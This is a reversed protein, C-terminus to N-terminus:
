QDTILKNVQLSNSEDISEPMEDKTNEEENKPRIVLLLALFPLLPARLRVLVGFIISSFGTIFGFILVFFLSFLLFENERIMKIRKRRDNTFFKILFYILITSEIGNLILSVSLAEFIYPRFLGALIAQPFVKILGVPSYDTIEITYKKGTYIKNNTFDQTQVEAEKIYKEVSVEEGYSQIGIFFGGISIIAILIQVFRKFFPFEKFRNSLRSSLAIFIPLMLSILVVSRLHFILWCHFLIIILSTIKSKQFGYILSFFHTVISFISIVVLTDKSIGTCWFSLSPIFLIAYTVWRNSDPFLRLILKYFRWTVNATITAFLVTIALYSNLTIFTFLSVVKAVFFSEKEKMIWTPPLGTELGYMDRFEPTRYEYYMNNFYTEPSIQFLRNMCGSLDWFAISDGGRVYFIYYLAFVISFGIKFILHKIYDKNLQKDEEKSVKYFTFGFILFLWIFLVAFDMITFFTLRKSTLNELFFSFSIKEM